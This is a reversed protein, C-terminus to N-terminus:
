VQHQDLFFFVCFFMVESFIFWLMSWRYTRDLTQDENLGHLGDHVVQRFWGQIMYILILAGVLTVLLWHIGEHLFHIFGFAMTFLAISGVIPWHSPPTLHAENQNAM